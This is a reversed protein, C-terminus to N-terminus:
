GKSLLRMDKLVEEAHGDPKVDEYVKAIKGDPAILFTTRLIGM